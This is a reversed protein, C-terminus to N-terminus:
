KEEEFSLIEITIHQSFFIYKLFFSLRNNKKFFCEFISDKLYNLHKKLLVLMKHIVYIMVFNFNLLPMKLGELLDM